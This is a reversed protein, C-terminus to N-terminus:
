DIVPRDTSIDMLLVGEEHEAFVAALGIEWVGSNPQPEQVGIPLETAFMQVRVVLEVIRSGTDADEVSPLRAVDRCEAEVGADIARDDM